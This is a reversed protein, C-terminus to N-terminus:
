IQILTSLAEAIISALTVLDSFHTLGRPPGGIIHTQPGIHLNRGLEPDLIGWATTPRPKPRGNLARFGRALPRHGRVSPRIPLEFAARGAHQYRHLRAM